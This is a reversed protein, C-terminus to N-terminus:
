PIDKLSLAKVKPRAKEILERDETVLLLGNERACHLYAADYFTIKLEAAADLVEEERCAVTTVQMLSLVQKLLSALRKTDEASSRGRLACEKWLVNGLEYRVLDLTNNGVLTDIENEKVAKVVSSSDFLYTM